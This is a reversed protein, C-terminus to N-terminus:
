RNVLQNSKSNNILELELKLNESVDHLGEDTPIFYSINDIMQDQGNIEFTSIESTNVSSYKKQLHFIELPSLSTTINKGLISSIEGAKFLTKTSIAENILSEVFQRQREDRSYISNVERKRMRVFALAEEGNLKRKGKEFNVKEGKVFFNKEWFPEKVDLTVGGLTDVIDKFGSFNVAVYEDIPIDLLQEVKEATLKNAGYGYISGYTYAANIKHSGEYEKAEEETFEVKTDRPISTMTVKSSHPNLTLVILSDARGNQGSTAYDEVGMLLISMPDKTIAVEKERLISKDDLRDMDVSTSKYLNIFLYSWYAIISVTVILM